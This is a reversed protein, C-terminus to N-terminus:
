QLTICNNKTNPLPISGRVPRLFLGTIVAESASCENNLVEILLYFCVFDTTSGVPNSGTVEITYADQALRQAVPASKYKKQNMGYFELVWYM